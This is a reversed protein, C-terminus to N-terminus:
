RGSVEDACVVRNRGGHKAGYLAQDARDIVDQKEDGHAPFTSVGLSITVNLPGLETQVTNAAIKERIRNAIVKAGETDTEPLIVAFEEGGYRAVVDTDRAEARLIRSVGKLVKDGVPHGYTDNVSKFHDVDCIILSVQRGYRRAAALHGDLLDQFTRHNNLGTLGDTTAMRETKEFLRGREIAGAAQMALVGLMRVADESLAGKGTAGCVVTGVVEEGVTMPLVKLTSLGRLKEPESFVVTKEMAHFDRGPLPSGLRVVNAVLGANDDFTLGPLGEAGPGTAEVVRHTVRPEAAEAEPTGTEALTM